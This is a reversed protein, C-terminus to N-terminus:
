AIACQHKCVECMRVQTCAYKRVRVRTCRQVSVISARDNVRGCMLMCTYPHLVNVCNQSTQPLRTSTRPCVQASQTQSFARGVEPDRRCGGSPTGHVPSDTNAITCAWALANCQASARLCPHGMQPARFHTRSHALACARLHALTCTRLHALTHCPRVCVDGCRHVYVHTSLAGHVQVSM